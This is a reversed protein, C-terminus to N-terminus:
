CGGPLSRMGQKYDDYLCRDAATPPSHTGNGTKLTSAAGPSRTDRDERAIGQPREPCAGEGESPGPSMREQSKLCCTTSLCAGAGGSSARPKSSQRCFDVDNARGGALQALAMNELLKISLSLSVGTGMKRTETVIQITRAPRPLLSTAHKGRPECSTIM